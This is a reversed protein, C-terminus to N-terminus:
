KLGMVVENGSKFEQKWSYANGLKLILNNTEDTPGNLIPCTKNNLCKILESTGIFTAHVTNFESKYSLVKRDSYYITTPYAEDTRIITDSPKIITSIKIASKKQDVPGTTNIISQINVLFTKLSIYFSLLILIGMFPVFVIKKKPLINTINQIGYATALSWFPMSPLLYWNNNRETLSLLGLLFLSYCLLLFSEKKRISVIIFFLGILLLYVFRRQLAFYLYMLYDIKLYKLAMQSVGQDSQFLYYDLFSQGTKLYGFLLWFGPILIAILLAVAYKKVNKKFYKREFLVESLIFILFPFMVLSAKTLYIFAFIIGLCEYKFRYKSVIFFYTLLIFFTVLADINGSRVRWIFTNNLTITIFAFLAPILGWKRYSYKTVLLITLFGAMASVIRMSFENLGVLWVFPLSLWMQFPPKDLLMVKNWYTLIFEHSRAMHRVMDAYWAEDWNELPSKGLQFFCIYGAIFTIIVFFVPIFFSKRTQM